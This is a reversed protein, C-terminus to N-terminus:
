WDGSNERIKKIFNRDRAILIEKVSIFVVVGVATITFIIALVLFYAFKPRERVPFSQRTRLVYLVIAGVLNRNKDGKAKRKIM